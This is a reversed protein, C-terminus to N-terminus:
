CLSNCKNTGYTVVISDTKNIISLILKIMLKLLFYVAFFFIIHRFINLEESEILGSSIKTSEIAVTVLCELHSVKGLKNM